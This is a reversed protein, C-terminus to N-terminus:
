SGVESKRDFRNNENTYNYTTISDKEQNLVLLSYGASTTISKVKGHDITGDIVQKIFDYFDPVSTYVSYSYPLIAFFGGYACMTGSSLVGLLSFKNTKENYLFSPGGSDGISTFTWTFNDTPITGTVFFQKDKGSTGGFWSSSYTDTAYYEKRYRLRFTKIYNEEFGFGADWVPINLGSPPVYQALQIPKFKSPLPSSLRLLALDAFQTDPFHTSPSGFYAQPVYISKVEFTNNIKIHRTLLIERFNNTDDDVVCHGATLVWQQAIVTGSCPGKLGPIDVSVVSAQLSKGFEGNTDPNCAYAMQAHVDGVAFPNCDSPKPIPNQEPPYDSLIHEAITPCLRKAIEPNYPEYDELTSFSKATFLNQFNFSSNPTNSTECNSYQTLLSFFIMIILKLM